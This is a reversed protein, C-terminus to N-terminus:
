GKPEGIIGFRVAERVADLRKMAGLWLREYTEARKTAMLMWVKMAALSDPYMRFGVNVAGDLCDCVPLDDAYDGDKTKGCQHCVFTMPGVWPVSSIVPTGGCGTGAM